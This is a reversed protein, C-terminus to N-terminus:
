DVCDNLEIRLFFFCEAFIMLHIMVSYITGSHTSLTELIQSFSM